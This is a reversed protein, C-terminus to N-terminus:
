SISKQLQRDPRWITLEEQVAPSLSRCANVTLYSWTRASRNKSYPNGKACAQGEQEAKGEITPLAPSLVWSGPERRELVDGPCVAQFHKRESLHAAPAAARDLALTKGTGLLSTGALTPDLLSDGVPYLGASCNDPDTDIRNELALDMLVGGALAYDLAWSPVRAFRGGEDDLLLLM